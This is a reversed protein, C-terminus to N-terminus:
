LFAAAFLCFATFLIFEAVFFAAYLSISCILSLFTAFLFFDQLYFDVM